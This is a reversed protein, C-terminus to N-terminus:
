CDIKHLMGFHNKNQTQTTLAEHYENINAVVRGVLFNFDHMCAANYIIVLSTHNDTNDNAWCLM